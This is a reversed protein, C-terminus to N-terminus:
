AEGYKTILEVGFSKLLASPPTGGIQVIVADNDIERVQGASDRLVARDPGIHQLQTGLLSQIRGSVLAEEIRRRNEGRCRAFVEGRYSISVSACGGHDMLALASEVASNGGGVVLVRRGTFEGPELLRYAVKALDEGPVGLKRPSGRVGLALVVNAARRMGQDSHVNWMGDPGLELREVLEGTVVPPSLSAQIDDWAAVLQEKTMKRGKLKGYLPLDVVDTMVVKARPYHTITGGFRERELLLVDLGAEMLALTTSIGAPGAGVVLVDLAGDIGRRPPEKGEPDGQIIRAAAQRGQNVANRILGMGGLEGVVYVGQKQTQFHPDIRPLEIGRTKSGYVLRIAGVPCASECAGHGICGLPNALRARGAVLAIVVKEPCAAVCAGSGICRSPDVEPHLSAPIVDGMGATDEIVGMAVAEKRRDTREWALYLVLSVGFLLAVILAASM